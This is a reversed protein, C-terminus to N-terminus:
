VPINDEDREESISEAMVDAKDAEEMDNLKDTPVGYLAKNIFDMQKCVTEFSFDGALPRVMDGNTDLHITKM